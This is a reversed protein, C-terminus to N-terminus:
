YGSAKLLTQSQRIKKQRQRRLRIMADLSAAYAAQHDNIDTVVPTVEAAPVSLATAVSAVNNTFNTEWSNLDGEVHPIYDSKM